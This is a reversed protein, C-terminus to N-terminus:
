SVFVTGIVLMIVLGLTLAIMMEILTFGSQGFTKYQTM